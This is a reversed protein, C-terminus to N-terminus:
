YGECDFIHHIFRTQPEYDIEYHYAVRVDADLAAKIAAAVTDNEEKTFRDIQFAWGEEHLNDAMLGLQRIERWVTYNGTTREASEYRTAYEDASVVLQRIEELTM